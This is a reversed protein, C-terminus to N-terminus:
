WKTRWDSVVERWTLILVLIFLSAKAFLNLILFRDLRAADLLWVLPFMAWTVLTLALLPAYARPVGPRMARVLGGTVAVMAACSLAFWVWTAGLAHDTALQGAGVMAACGVLALAIQRRTPGAPAQAISFLMLATLPTTWAWDVSLRYAGQMYGSALVVLWAKLALWAFVSRRWRVTMWGLAAGGVGMAINAEM